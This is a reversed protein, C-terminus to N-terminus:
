QSIVDAGRPPSFKFQEADLRPNAELKAFRITTVQGFSDTLEMTTPLDKRFGMRISQITSDPDKPTAILWEIGDKAGADALSYNKEIDNSGALLSAPTSGLAEHQTKVTVQNLDTDYMWLKAGDGVLLQRYPRKYEWRFRGPRQFQLMGDSQEAPKGARDTVQQTFEGRASQTHEIFAHLRDVGGAAAELASLGLAVALLTRMLPDNV